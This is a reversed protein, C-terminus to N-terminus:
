GLAKSQFPVYKVLLSEIKSQDIPKSVFDTAGVVKARVRDVLGDNGTLIVVPIGKLTSIRRIQACIEYGNAVPMVLDLFILDPKNEILAPVATLADQICMAQYGKSSLIGELTQCVTASDDICVVKPGTTGSPKSITKSLTKAAVKVTSAQVKPSATNPLSEVPRTVSEPVLASTPIPPTTTKPAILSMVGVAVYGNLQQALAMPKQQMKLALTRISDRGQILREWRVFAHPSDQRLVEPRTIIPIQNPSVTALGAQQWQQWESQALELVHPARVMTVPTQIRDQDELHYQIMHQPATAQLLDFLTEQLSAEVAAVVQARSLKEQKLLGLLTIYQAQPPKPRGLALVETAKLGQDQGQAQSFSLLLRRWRQAPDVGDGPWVLRGLCFFFQGQYNAATLDVRGSFRVTSLLALLEELPLSGSKEVTSHIRRSLTEKRKLNKALSSEISDLSHLAATYDM